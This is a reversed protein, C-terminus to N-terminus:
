INNYLKVDGIHNAWFWLREGVWSIKEWALLEYGRTLPFFAAIGLAAIVYGTVGLSNWFKTTNTAKAQQRLPAPEFYSHETTTVQFEHSSGARNYHPQMAIQDFAFNRTPPPPPALSGPGRELLRAIKGKADDSLEIFEALTEVALGDDSTQQSVVRILGRATANLARMDISTFMVTGEPVQRHLTAVLRSGDLRSAKGTDDVGLDSNRVNISVPFPLLAPLEDTSENVPLLDAM